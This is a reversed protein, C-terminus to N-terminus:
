KSPGRFFAPRAMRTCSFFLIFFLLAFVLPITLPYYAVTSVLLKTLRSFGLLLVSHSARNEKLADKHKERGRPPNHWLLSGIYNRFIIKHGM